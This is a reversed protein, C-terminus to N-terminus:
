AEMLFEPEREGEDDYEHRGAGKKGNVFRNLDAGFALDMAIRASRKQGKLNEGLLLLHGQAAFGVKECGKGDKAFAIDARELIDAVIRPL